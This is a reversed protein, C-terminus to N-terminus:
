IAGAFKELAAKLEPETLVNIKLIKHRGTQGGIVEIDKQKIKFFDALFKILAANAAGDVPPATIKVKLEDALFGLIENKKARPSVAM